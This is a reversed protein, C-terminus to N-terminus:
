TSALSQMVCMSRLKPKLSQIYKAHEKEYFDGYHSPGDSGIASAKLLAVGVRSCMVKLNMNFGLKEGKRRREADGRQDTAFGAYKLLASVTKAREINIQCLVKAINEKGIGRIRSFWPYAPHAGTFAAVMDLLDNKLAEMKEQFLKTEPDYLNQKALHSQRIKAATLPKDFVMVADVIASLGSKDTIPQLQAETAKKPM